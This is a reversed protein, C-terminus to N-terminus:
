KKVINSSFIKTFKKFCAIFDIALQLFLCFIGLFLLLKFIWMPWEIISVWEKTRYSLILWKWARWTFVGIIFFSLSTTFLDIFKQTHKPLLKFVIDINTNGKEAQTHALTLSIIFALCLQSIEMAGPIPHRFYRGIVDLVTIITVASLPIIASYYLYINFKQILKSLKM